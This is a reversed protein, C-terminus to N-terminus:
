KAGGVAAEVIDDPDVLGAARLHPEISTLFVQPDLKWIVRDCPRGYLLFSRGDFHRGLLDLREEPTCAEILASLESGPDVDIQYEEEGIGISGMENWQIYYDCDTADCATLILDALARKTLVKLAATAIEDGDLHDFPQFGIRRSGYNERFYRLTEEPGNESCEMYATLDGEVFAKDQAEVIDNLEDRLAKYAASYDTM